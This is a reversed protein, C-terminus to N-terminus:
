SADAGEGTGALVAAANGAQEIKRLDKRRMWARVTLALAIATAGLTSAAVSYDAQPRRLDRAYLDVTVAAAATTVALRRM